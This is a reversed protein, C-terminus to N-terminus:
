KPRAFSPDTEGYITQTVQITGMGILTSTQTILCWSEGAPMIPLPNGTAADTGSFGGCWVLPGDSVGDGDTDVQTAPVPMAAPEPTWTFTGFWSPAEETEFEFTVTQDMAGVDSSLNYGILETCPDPNKADDDGRTFTAQPTNAGDGVTFTDDGCPIIGDFVDVLVFASGSIGLSGPATGDAGGELSFAGENTAGNVTFRLEDFLVDAVMDAGPDIVWRYNDGDTSDPGSDSLDGTPLSESAVLTGDNYLEAEVQVSFKGEVDLEARAIEKDALQGALMLALGEDPGDARGCPQGNGGGPGGKTKVGIGDDFIGVDSTSPQATLTVLVAGGTALTLKCGQDTIAQTAALADATDYLAFRDVSGLELVLTGEDIIVPEPPAQGVAVHAPGVVFGM